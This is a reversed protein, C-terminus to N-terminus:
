CNPQRGVFGISNISVASSRDMKNIAVLLHSPNDTSLADALAILAPREALPLDVCRTRLTDVIFLKSTNM